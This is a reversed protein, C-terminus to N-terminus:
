KISKVEVLLAHPEQLWCAAYSICFLGSLCGKQIQCEDSPLISLKCTPVQAYAYQINCFYTGYDGSILGVGRKLLFNNYLTM